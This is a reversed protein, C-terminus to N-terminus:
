FFICPFRGGRPQCYAKRSLAQAHPLKTLPLRVCVASWLSDGAHEMHEMELPSTGFGVARM